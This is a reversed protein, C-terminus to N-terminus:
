VAVHVVECPGGLTHPRLPPALDQLGERALHGLAAAERHGVPVILKQGLGQDLGQVFVPRRDRRIDSAQSASAISRRSALLRIASARTSDIKRRARYRTSRKWVSCNGSRKPRSSKEGSKRALRSVPVPSGNSSRSSTFYRGCMSWNM